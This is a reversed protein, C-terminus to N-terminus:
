KHRFGKFNQKNITIRSFSYKNHFKNFKSHILLPRFQFGQIGTSIPQPQSIAQRIQRSDVIVKAQEPSIGQRALRMQEMIDRRSATAQNQRKIASVLKRYQWVHMPQGTIPNRYTYSGTPRGVRGTRKGVGVGSVQTLKSMRIPSMTPRYKIGGMTYVNRKVSRTLVPTGAITPKEMQKAFREGFKKFPVNQYFKTKPKVKQMPLKKRQSIIEGMLKNLGM